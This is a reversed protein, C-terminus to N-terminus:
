EEDLDDLDAEDHDDNTSVTPVVDTETSITATMANNAMEQLAMAVTTTEDDEVEDAVSESM